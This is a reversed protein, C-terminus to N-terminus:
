VRMVATIEPVLLADIEDALLADPRKDVDFVLAIAIQARVNRFRAANAFALQSVGSGGNESM